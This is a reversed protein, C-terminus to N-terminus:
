SGYAPDVGIVYKGNPQPREWVRLQVDDIDAASRLKMKLFNDGLEYRFGQYSIGADRIFNMDATIRQLNFFPHGTAQFAESALSPFEEMLSQESRGDAKARYWAWQAPSIEIGHESYVAETIRQEYETYAPFGGWWREFDASDEAYAYPEKAWWGIFSARRQEPMELAEKWCDWFLNFGLATSEFLYLRNPNELALTDMLTEYGKTDGWRGLESAHLFNLGRSRGLGANKGTGASMYQLRSGNALVLMTRDHKEVPIQFGKPLSAMMQKITERFIERNEATDCVFAGQLGPHMYLWFMDLLLLLMSLGLQRAKLWVFFHVGSALGDELQQLALEQATYLKIPGPAELEKSVVSVLSCFYKFAPLWRRAKVSDVPASGGSASTSTLLTWCCAPM